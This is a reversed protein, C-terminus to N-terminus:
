ASGRRGVVGGADGQHGLLDVAALAHMNQIMCIEVNAMKIRAALVAYASKGRSDDIMARSPKRGRWNALRPSRSTNELPTMKRATTAASSIMTKSPSMELSIGSYAKPTNVPKVSLWAPMTRWWRRRWSGFQRTPMTILAIPATVVTM